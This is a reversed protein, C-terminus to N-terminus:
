AEHEVAKVNTKAKKNVVSKHYAETEAVYMADILAQKAKKRAKDGEKRTAKAKDKAEATQNGTRGRAKAKAKAEPRRSYARARVRAKVEPRRSYARKQELKETRKQAKGEPTQNFAILRARAEKRAREEIRADERIAAAKAKAKAIIAVARAKAKAIIAKARVNARSKAKAGEASLPM